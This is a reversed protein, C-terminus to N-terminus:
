EINNYDSRAAYFCDINKLPIKVPEFEKGTYMVGTIYDKKCEKLRFMHTFGMKSKIMVMKDQYNKLNMKDMIKKFPMENYYIDKNDM